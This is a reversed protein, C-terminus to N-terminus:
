TLVSLSTTTHIIVMIVVQMLMNVMRETSQVGDRLGVNIAWIHYPTITVPLGKIFVPVGCVKQRPQEIVGRDILSHHDIVPPANASGTVVAGKIGALVVVIWTLLSSPNPPNKCRKLCM